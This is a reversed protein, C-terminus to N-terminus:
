DQERKQENINNKIADLNDEIYELVDGKAKNEKYLWLLYSDPVSGMNQGKYKGWPMPSNDDLVTNNM